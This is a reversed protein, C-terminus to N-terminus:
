RIIDFAHQHVNYNECMTYLPSHKQVDIRPTPLYFCVHNRSTLRPVLFYLKSLLNSCDIRYHILNRLFSMSANVRRTKLDQCKFRELLESQSRGREPYTGDIRYALFKLFRRQVKELNQIHTQCNSSWIISGYELRSRVFAFYLMKLSRIDSFNKTCRIIFGLSRLAGSVIVNYLKLKTIRFYERIIFINM